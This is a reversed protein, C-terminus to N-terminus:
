EDDAHWDAVNWWPGWSVGHAHPEVIPRMGAWGRDRMVYTHDLFALMVYAPDDVYEQQVERYSEVRREDDVSNRGRDLADDVADNRYASPNLFPNTEDYDAYQSHLATYVQPDPDFPFEGGGLMGADDPIRPRFETRDVAELSVEIGIGRADSVFAQGLDRRITEDPFYMLTFEARVGDKERVGDDGETWGAEDLLRRAAEPDHEFVAGPDHYEGFVEPIPTYAPVGYGALVADIMSERDVALNLAERIDRDGTVPHGSPMTVGRWDASPYTVVDVGDVEDFTEALKPPLWAGDFDGAQMRQARTNDDPAIAVTLRRVEPAGGWYDDNAELVVQEGRRWEALEYPGTGIPETNLASEEVPVPDDLAEEPAIGLLMRTDFAAYPSALHFRVTHEDVKEVEDLMAYATALPSAYEPDLVAEFTAVVDDADFRSDDHFRVDDRLRVTWETADDNVEPMDAALAPELAPTGDADATLRLLGDYIKSSGDEGHGGIPNFGEPEFSDALVLEDDPANADDGSPDGCSTVFLATM